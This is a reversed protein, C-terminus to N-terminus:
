SFLEGCDVPLTPLCSVCVECDRHEMELAGVRALPFSDVVYCVQTDGGVTLM